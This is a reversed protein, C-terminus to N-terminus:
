VKNNIEKVSTLQEVVEPFFPPERFVSSAEVRSLHDERELAEVAVTDNVSIQFRLVHEEVVLPVELQSVESERLSPYCSIM